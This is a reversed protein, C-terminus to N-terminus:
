RFFKTWMILGNQIKLYGEQTSILRGLIQKTM